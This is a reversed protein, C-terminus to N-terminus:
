QLWIVGWCLRVSCSSLAWGRSRLSQLESPLAHERRIEETAGAADNSIAWRRNRLQVIATSENQITVSYTFVYNHGPSSKPKAYRSQM